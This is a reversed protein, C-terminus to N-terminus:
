KALRKQGGGTEIYKTIRRGVLAHSRIFKKFWESQHETITQGQVIKEAIDWAVEQESKLQRAEHQATKEKQRQKEERMAELARLEAESYSDTRNEQASTLAQLAANNHEEGPLPFTLTNNTTKAQALMEAHLSDLGFEEAYRKMDRKFQRLSKETQRRRAIYEEPSVGRGILDKNIVEAHHHWDGELYIYARAVDAPDLFVNVPKRAWLEEQLEPASYILKNLQIRGRRVTATGAFNLFTDLARPDSIVQPKYGSNLYRQLPSEGDNGAHPAHNYYHELWDDMFQQLEEPSMALELAQAKSKQKGAGIRDAFAKCAEIKERDSVNHGIYTPMVEVIGGQFTRFFREIHPKQWGSFPEARSQTVGLMDFIKVTRQAVYDSGNDTRILGSDNLMGWDLIVKRMLLSIAESTSTPALYLKARKTYVDICGVISYRVLKDNVRLMVDTPTSDLEWMDNPKSVWPEHDMVLPRESGFYRTHDTAFIFKGVNDETWQQVWRTISSPSPIEWNHGFRKAQVEALNKLKHAQNKFHPKAILLAVLFKELEPQAKVKSRKSGKNGTNALACIGSEKYATRWRDVTTRSCKKVNRYVWDPLSLNKNRYADFFSTYGQTTIGNAAFPAIYNDCALVIEHRALAQEQQEKKLSNFAKLGETGITKLANAESHEQQELESLLQGAAAEGETKIQNSNMIHVRTEGPLSNIHFEYGKGTTRPRTEWEEKKAKLRIGRDTSPLGPMGTLQAATYWQNHM